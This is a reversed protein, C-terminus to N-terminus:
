KVRHYGEHCITLEEVAVEGSKADMSPGTIKSPWCRVLDWRAVEKGEPSYMVLSGNKRASDVKGEEVQKRWDWMKMSSTVGGKLTIETWKINGPLKQVVYNGKDDRGEQTVITHESGLGSCERFIGATAGQFELSFSAARLPDEMPM